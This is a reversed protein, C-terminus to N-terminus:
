AAQASQESFGTLTVAEVSRKVNRSVVAMDHLRELGEFRRELGGFGQTWIVVNDVPVAQLNPIGFSLQQAILFLNSSSGPRRDVACKSVRLAARRM